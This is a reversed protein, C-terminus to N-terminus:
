PALREIRWNGGEAVYVLRDHLRFARGQWFEIRDPVLRFGGWFPPLPVEGDAYKRETEGYRAQLFERNAIVQSQPSAWAGLQSGRLRSHFYKASAEDGLREVRGEVRVQRQLESWHLVLAAFPRSALEAGKRSEHNTYFVFGDASAGKLLMMRASPRGDAGVTALTMANPLFVGSRRALHMWRAFQVFPDPALESEHLGRMVGPLAALKAILGM